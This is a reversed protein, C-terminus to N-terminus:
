RAITGASVWGIEGATTRVQQWALGDAAARGNLLEVTSGV